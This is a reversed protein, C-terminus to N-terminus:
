VLIYSVSLSVAPGRINAALASSQDQVLAGREVVRKCVVTERCRGVILLDTLDVSAEWEAGPGAGGGQAGQRTDGDTGRVRIRIHSPLQELSTHVTRLSDFM